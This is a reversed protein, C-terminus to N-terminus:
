YGAAQLRQALQPNDAARRRLEALQPPEAAQQQGQLAQYNQPVVLSADAGSRQAIEGYRGVAAGYEKDFTGMRSRAETLIQNKVESTLKGGGAVYQVYGKVREPMGPANAVTAYEGERVVSNPDYLKAIGYVINIDSMPTNRKVADEIGRFSPLAQKYNKVEPLGEFEKRIATSVEGVKGVEDLGRGMLAAKQTAAAKRQEPSGAVILEDIQAVRAKRAQDERAATDARDDRASELQLRERQIGSAEAQRRDQMLARAALGRQQMEERQNQGAQEAEAQRQQARQVLPIAAGQAQQQFAAAGNRGPAAGRALVTRLQASDNFDANRNAYDVPGIIALGPTAPVGIGQRAQDLATASLSRLHAADRNAEMIPDFAAPQRTETRGSFARQSLSMPAASPDAIAALNAPENDVRRVQAQTAQPQLAPAGGTPMQPLEALAARNLDEEDAMGGEAFALVSASLPRREPAEQEAQPKGSQVGPSQQKSAQALAGLIQDVGAAPQPRSSWSVQGGPTMGVSRSLASSTSQAAGPAPAPGFMSRAQQNPPNAIVGLGGTAQSPTSLARAALGPAAPPPAAAPASMAPAAGYTSLTGAPAQGNVTIDGAINGGSYSNGQRTVDNTQTGFPDVAMGGGAAHAIGQKVKPAPLGQGGKKVMAMIQAAGFRRVDDAPIVVEGDSLAAPVSDSTNTGPGRVLVRDVLPITSQAQM